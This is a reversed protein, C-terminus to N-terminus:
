INLNSILEMFLVGIFMFVFGISALLPPNAYKEMARTRAKINENIQNEQMSQVMLELEKLKDQDIGEKMFDYLMSMVMMSEGGGVYEAFDIFYERELGGELKLALEEVKSKLPEDLYNVSEMLASPVTAKISLLSNFYKLFTPFMYRRALEEDKMANLLIMYPIKFGVIFGILGVLIAMPISVVKLFILAALPIGGLLLGVMIKQITYVTYNGKFHKIIGRANKEFILDMLM